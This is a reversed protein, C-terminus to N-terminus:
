NSVPNQSAARSLSLDLNAPVPLLWVDSHHFRRNVRVTRVGLSIGLRTVWRTFLESDSHAFSQRSKIVAFTKAENKPSILAPQACVGELYFYIRVSSDGRYCRQVLITIILLTHPIAVIAELPSHDFNDAM